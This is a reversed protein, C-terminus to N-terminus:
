NENDWLSKAKVSNPWQWGGGNDWHFRYGFVRLTFYRIDTNWIVHIRGPWTYNIKM